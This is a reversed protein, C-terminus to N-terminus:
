ANGLAIHHGAVSSDLDVANEAAELAGQFDGVRLLEGARLAFVPASTSLRKMARSAKQGDGVVKVGFMM